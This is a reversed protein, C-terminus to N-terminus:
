CSFIFQLSCFLLNFYHPVVKVCVANCSVRANLVIERGEQLYSGNIEVALKM